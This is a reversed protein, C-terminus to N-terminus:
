REANPLLEITRFLHDHWRGDPYEVQLEGTPRAGRITGTFLTGDPLRFRCPLDLRWLRELYCRHITASDGQELLDYWQGIATRCAALVAEPDFSRGGAALRLSTPNPLTPDFLVQNVNLGIGVISRAICGDTLNHEILIGAAKRDGLYLDNTWKIRPEAEAELNCAAAMSQIGLAVAELLSFQQAASLFRPELLLSFTLNEGEPSLWLHGRQGRGGSQRRALIVDGHRYRPHRAEDNTSVLEDFRFIRGETVPSPKPM